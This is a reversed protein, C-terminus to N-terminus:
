NGSGSIPLGCPPSKSKLYLQELWLSHVQAAVEGRGVWFAAQGSGPLGPCAQACLGRSMELGQSLSSLYVM